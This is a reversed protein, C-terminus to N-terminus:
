IAVELAALKKALVDRTLKMAEGIDFDRPELEGVHVFASRANYLNRVITRSKSRMDGSGGLLFAVSERLRASLDNRNKRDLLLGELTAALLM